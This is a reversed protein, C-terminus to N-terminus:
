ALSTLGISPAVDRLRARNYFKNFVQWSSWRGTNLVVDIPVGRDIAASAAAMRISGGKYKPDVKIRDMILRMWKSCTQAGVPFHFGTSRDPVQSMFVHQFNYVLDALRYLQGSTRDIYDKLALVPCVRTCQDRSIGGQQTFVKVSRLEKTGFYQYRMSTAQFITKDRALRAMDSVRPYVSVGFLSLAKFGLEVTSLEFNDAQTSWYQVIAGVDWGDEDPSHRPQPPLEIKWGKM